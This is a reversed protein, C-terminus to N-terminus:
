ANDRGGKQRAEIVELARRVQRARWLVWGVLLGLAGLTVAYSGLVAEAYPGLDPM